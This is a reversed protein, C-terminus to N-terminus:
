PFSVTQAQLRTGDASLSGQVHVSVNPTALAAASGNAFHAASYDVRVNRVVFTQAVANLSGVTGALQYSRRDAAQATLVTVKDAVLVGGQLHGEIQAQAGAVLAAPAPVVAANRIDVALAGFRLAAGPALAAVVGEALVKAADTPAASAPLFGGVQLVGGAGVGALKVHVFQQDALDTPVGAATSYNLTVAGITFRKTQSNMGSVYGRLRWAEGPTAPEIRTAVPRGAADALAHVSVADGIRLAALGTTMAADFVTSGNIQLTQGLVTLTRGVLDIAAVPGVVLRSLHVSSAVATLGSSGQAVAGGEVEGIMGLRVQTDGAALAVGDDDFVTAKSDDFEIGGVFISGFGSVPASGFSGTGGTGVGGGCSALLMTAIALAAIGAAVFARSVRLARARPPTTTM